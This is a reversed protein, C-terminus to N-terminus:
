IKKAVQRKSYWPFWYMYLGTATMIAFFLSFFPSLQNHLYRVLQFDLGPTLRVLFAFKLWSGTIGMILGFGVMGFLAVRHITKSWQFLQVLKNM